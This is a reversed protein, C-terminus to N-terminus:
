WHWNARLGLVPAPGRDRNYGPNRIAQVDPSLQWHKGLQFRYYLELIQEWGYRLAGDGLLFGLGGAALYDRHDRSLGHVTAGLGVRDDPRHWSVGAVQIGGSVVRDVETFVFDETRSDNWGLRLFLGTEGDDALPQEVNLGLGVKRRGERDDAAIDPPAGAALGRAIAERYIGMRGHNQYALLRVVTGRGGPGLQLELNDGRARDFHKDFVNGNATTPMQVSAARLTWTPHVWAVTVGFTYGRTDAAYDWATNNFLSWNMFQGRTTNAYRNQDFDDTLALKGAKIELRNTPERGPFRDMGREAPETESGLPLLYRLYARAVYPGMGLDVTGQRIVDGNTPGGLGFVNSIGKGRAMELDLYVQLRRALRAGFYLGYTDTAKQDGTSKLSQPGDYAAHFGILRQGIYTFQAGLLRPVWDPLAAAAAPAAAEAGAEAAEAAGAVAAAPAAAANGALAAAEAPPPGGAPAESAPPPQQQAALRSAAALAAVAALAVRLAKRRPPQGRRVRM